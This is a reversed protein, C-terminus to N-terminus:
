CEDQIAGKTLGSKQYGRRRRHVTENKRCIAKCHRNAIDTQVAAEAEEIEPTAEEYIPVSKLIEYRNAPNRIGITGVQVFRQKM